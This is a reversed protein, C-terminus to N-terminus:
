VATNQSMQTFCFFLGPAPKAGPRVQDSHHSEFERGRPGSGLVSGFQAVGRCQVFFMIGEELSKTLDIPQKKKQKM